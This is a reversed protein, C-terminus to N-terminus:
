FYPQSDTGASALGRQQRASQVRDAPQVSPAKLCESVGTGCGTSSLKGDWHGGVEAMTCLLRVRWM